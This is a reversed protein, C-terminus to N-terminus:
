REGACFWLALNGMKNKAVRVVKRELVDAVRRFLNNSIDAPLYSSYSTM